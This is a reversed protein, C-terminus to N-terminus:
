FILVNNPLIHILCLKILLQQVWYKAFGTYDVLFSTLIKKSLLMMTTSEFASILNSFKCFIASCVKDDQFLIQPAQISLCKVIYKVKRTTDSVFNNNFVHLELVWLRNEVPSLTQILLWRILILRMTTKEFNFNMFIKLSRGFILCRYFLHDNFIYIDVCSFWSLLHEANYNTITGEQISNYTLNCKINGAPTLNYQLLM